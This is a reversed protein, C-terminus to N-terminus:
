TRPPYHHIRSTQSSCFQHLCVAAICHGGSPHRLCHPLLHPRGGSVCASVASPNSCFVVSHVLLGPSAGARGHVCPLRFLFFDPLFSIPYLLHLLDNLPFFIYITFCFVLLVKGPDAGFVDLIAEVLGLVYGGCAFIKALFFMLGISGGFEPGLSRSIM